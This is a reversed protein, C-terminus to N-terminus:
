SAQRYQDAIEAHLAPASADAGDLIEPVMGRNVRTLALAVHEVGIASGHLELTERLTLELIKKAVPTFPIHGDRGPGRAQYRAHADAPGAPRRLVGGARGNRYRHPRRRWRRILGPPLARRPDLRSGHSRASGSAGITVRRVEFDAWAMAHPGFSAEIRARVADLDIGISALADRDLSGFPGAGTGSGVRRTIEREVYAPTIGHANLIASAPHGASVVALLLHEGGIYHHGLRRAQKQADVIVFKAERTFREFM